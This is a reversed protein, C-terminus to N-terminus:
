HRYRLGQSKACLILMGYGYETSFFQNGEVVDKRSSGDSAFDGNLFMHFSAIAIGESRMYTQESEPEQFKWVDGAGADLLVSVFFLDVLGRAREVNDLGREDWQHLLKELRPIGGVEFHQWRGHPPILHYKDPGFDRQM